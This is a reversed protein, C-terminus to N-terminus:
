KSVKVNVHFSNMHSKLSEEDKSKHNCVTCIKFNNKHIYKSHHNLREKSDFTRECKECNFTEESLTTVSLTDKSIQKPKKPPDVKTNSLGKIKFSNTNDTLGIISFEKSLKLFETLKEEQINVEGLYMYQLVAQLDAHKIGRLYILPNPHPNNNIITKLVPSCSSVVAKHASIQLQEDCVFTVDTFESSHIMDSLIRKSHNDFQNAVINYM